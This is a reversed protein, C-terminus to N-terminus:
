NNCTALASEFQGIILRAQENGAAAKEAVDDFDKFSQAESETLGFNAVKDHMCNRVEPPLETLTDILEDALEKAPPASAGCATLVSLAVVALPLFARRSSM